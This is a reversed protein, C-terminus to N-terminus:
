AYQPHSEQIPGMPTPSEKSNRDCCPIAVETAFIQSCHGEKWKDAYRAGIEWFEAPTSSLPGIM